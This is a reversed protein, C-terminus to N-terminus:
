AMGEPPRTIIFQARVHGNTYGLEGCIINAERVGFQGTGCVTTWSGNHFMEVRGEKLSGRSARDNVLRVTGTRYFLYIVCYTLNICKTSVNKLKQYVEEGKSM